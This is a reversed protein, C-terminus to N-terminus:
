CECAWCPELHSQSRRMSSASFDKLISELIVESVRATLDVKSNWIKKIKSAIKSAKIIYFGLLIQFLMKDNLVNINKCCFM